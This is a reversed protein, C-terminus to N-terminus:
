ENFLARVFDSPFSPTPLFRLSPTLDLPENRSAPGRPPKRRAPPRESRGGLSVVRGPCGSGGEWGLGQRSGGCGELGGPSAARPLPSPRPLPQPSPILIQPGPLPGSRTRASPYRRPPLSCHTSSPFSWIRASAADAGAYTLPSPRPGCASVPGSEGNM